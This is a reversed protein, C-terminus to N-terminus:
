WELWVRIPLLLYAATFGISWILVASWYIRKNWKYTSQCVTRLVPEVPCTREPRFLMWGSIVLMVGSLGFVWVKYESFTVFFPFLSTLAAVSAGMGISVMLIPLACCVLTGTSTFLTIWTVGQERFAQKVTKNM